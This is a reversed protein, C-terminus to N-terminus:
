LKGPNDVRAQGSLSLLLQAADVSNDHSPDDSFFSSEFDRRAPTSSINAPRVKSVSSVNANDTISSSSRTPFQVRVSGNTQHPIVDNPTSVVASKTPSNVHVLLNGVSNSRAVTSNAKPIVNANQQPVTTVGSVTTSLPILQGNAITVAIGQATVLQGNVNYLVLKQQTPKGTRNTLGPLTSQGTVVAPASPSASVKVDTSLGGASAVSAVNNVGHNAYVASNGDQETVVSQLGRAVPVASVATSAEHLPAAVINVPSKQIANKTVFIPRNQKSLQVVTNSPTSQTASPKSITTQLQTLLEKRPVAVSPTSTLITQSAPTPQHVSPMVHSALSVAPSSITTPLNAVSAPLSSVAHPTQVQLTKNNSVNVMAGAPAAVLQLTGDKGQLLVMNPHKSHGGVPMGFTTLTQSTPTRGLSSAVTSPLAIKVEQPCSVGTQIPPPLRVTKATQAALLAHVTNKGPMITVNSSSVQQAAPRLPVVKSSVAPPHIPKAQSDAVHNEDGKQNEFVSPVISSTIQTAAASVTSVIARNRDIFSNGIISTTAPPDCNNATTSSSLAIPNSTNRAKTPLQPVAPIPSKMASTTITVPRSRHTTPMVFPSSVKIQATPLTTSVTTLVTKVANDIAIQKQNAALIAQLQATNTVVVQKVGSGHKIASGMVVQQPQAIFSQTSKAAAAIQVVQGNVVLQQLVQPQQVAHQVIQQQVPQQQIPQQQVSQQQLPQQQLPQQKVPQQKVPPQQVLQQQVSQQQVLQQQVPQQQVSQQQLSQQITNQVNRTEAVTGLAAAKGTVAIAPNEVEQVVRNTNVPQVAKGVDGAIVSTTLQQNTPMQVSLSNQVTPINVLQQQQTMQVNSQQQQQLASAVLAALQPHQQTQPPMQLVTAGLQALQQQQQQQQNGAILLQQQPMLLLAQQQPQQVAVLHQQGPVALVTPQKQVPPIIQRAAQPVVAPTVATSTSQKPVALVLQQPISGSQQQKLPSLLQRPIVRPSVIEQQANVQINNQTTAAATIVPVVSRPAIAQQIPQLQQKNPQQQINPLMATLIQKHRESIPQKPPVALKESLTQQTPTTQSTSPSSPTTITHKTDIIATDGATSVTSNTASPSSVQPKSPTVNSITTMTNTFKPGPTETNAETSDAPKILQKNELLTKVTIGSSYKLKQPSGPLPLLQVNSDGLEARETLQALLEPNFQCKKLVKLQATSMQLVKGKPVIPVSVSSSNPLPASPFVVDPTSVAESTTIATESEITKEEGTSNIDSQVVASQVPKNVTADKSAAASESVVSSVVSTSASTCATTKTEQAMLKLRGEQTKLLHQVVAPPCKSIVNFNAFSSSDKSKLAKQQKTSLDPSVKPPPTKQPAPVIKVLKGTSLQTPTPKDAPKATIPSTTTSSVMTSKAHTTVTTLVTASTSSTNRSSTPIAASDVTSTSLSIPLKPLDAAPKVSLLAPKNVPPSAVASKIQLQLKQQPAGGGQKQSPSPVPASTSNTLYGLFKADKLTPNTAAQSPSLGKVLLTQGKSNVWLSGLSTPTMSLNFTPGKSAPSATTTATANKQLINPLRSSKPGDKKSTEQPKKRLKIGPEEINDPIIRRKRQRGKMSIGFETEENIDMSKAKEAKIKPTRNPKASSPTHRGPLDNEISRNSLSSHDHVSDANSQTEEDGSSESQSEESEWVDEIQYLFLFLNIVFQIITVILLQQSRSIM